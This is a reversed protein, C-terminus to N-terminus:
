VRSGRNQVELVNLQIFRERDYCYKILYKVTAVYVVICRM